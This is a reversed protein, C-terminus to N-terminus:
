ALREVKEQWVKDILYDVGEEEVNPRFDDLRDVFEITM